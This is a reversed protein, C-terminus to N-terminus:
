LCYLILNANVGTPLVAINFTVENFWVQGKSEFRFLFGETEDTVTRVIALNEFRIDSNNSNRLTRKKSGSEFVLESGESGVFTVKGKVTLDQEEATAATTTDDGDSVTASSDDSSGVAFLAFTALIALALILSIIKKM